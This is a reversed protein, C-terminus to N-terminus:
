TRLATIIGQKQEYKQVAQPAGALLRRATNYASPTQEPDLDILLGALIGVLPVQDAEEMADLAGFVTLMGVTSHENIPALKLLAKQLFTRGKETQLSKKRNMAFRGFLARQDNAQEIRFADSHEARVILDLV